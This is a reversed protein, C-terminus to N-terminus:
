ETFTFVSHPGEAWVSHLTHAQPGDSLPCHILTHAEPGCQTSLSISHFENKMYLVCVFTCPRRSSQRRWALSTNARCRSRSPALTSHSPGPGCLWPRRGPMLAESACGQTSHLRAADTTVTLQHVQAENRAFHTWFVNEMKEVFPSQNSFIRNQIVIAIREAREANVDHISPSSGM